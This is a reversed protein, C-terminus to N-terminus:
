RLTQCVCDPNIKTETWFEEFPKKFIYFDNENGIHLLTCGPKTIKDFFSHEKDGSTLIGLALKVTRSVVVNIDVLLGPMPKPEGATYDWARKKDTGMEEDLEAGFVCEYCPYGPITLLVEGGKGGEYVSPYLVPVVDHALGNIRKKTKPNDTAEIILDCGMILEMLEEREMDLLSKDYFRLNILPNIKLLKKRMADTKKEGVDMLDYVSRCINSLSVTDYEIAIINRVGSRDLAETVVSGGGGLGVIMVTTGDLSSDPMIGRNRKNFDTEYNIVEVESREESFGKLSQLHVLKGDEITFVSDKEPLPEKSNRASHSFMGIEKFGDM